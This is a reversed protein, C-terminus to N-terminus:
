FFRLTYVFRVGRGIEPALDKIFSSHNRYLKDGLNFTNVSFIHAIHQQTYTYSVDLNLLGYGATPTENTFVHDQKQALIIEPRVGFGKYRWDIGLRGRLPPIRPLGLNGTKLEADVYDLGTNIWLTPLVNVDFRAEYGRYRSDGQKYQAEPLGDEINGTPALFIFDQLNYYFYNFEARIRSMSHRLSFEVGDGRERNLQTNGIEFTLNGPHPGNNYLEELAPARYSHSYNVVFAGGEWLPVRMGAAGSFGTFNRAEGTKPAYRNNELRGGFQFAVRKLNLEELGFVAFSNQTTPPALAEAGISEYNRRQGWFGFSGSLAGKRQQEFVGRYVFLDNNFTTGITEAGDAVEIEQHQYDSYNFTLRFSNLVSNIDNAGASFGVAHRRMKLDIQADPEGELLGAFPIGYRRQDFGYNGSFFAKEGYYGFGGSGGGSWGASNDIRGVTPAHYDGVRQFSGNGWLLLNGVGYEVGGSTGGQSNNTGGIGTLYGRAGAHPKDHLNHGTIANVVGGIANSGYLLAAPGKVVELRELSLVDVPEGHDGSQAGISGLQMGDQLVLVRDGDFGRVIPRSSGPGFSRKAVGPQKDLVEGLSPHGKETLDVNDLSNVSQFAEFTSQESGTASITVADRLGKLKLQFDATVTDNGSITITQVADPFGEMHAHVSWTGVPVNKIEYNGSEDTEATLKLKVISIAVDHLPKNNGELSVNGRISGTNQAFISSTFITLTFLLISFRAM